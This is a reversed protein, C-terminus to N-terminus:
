RRSPRAWRTCAPPSGTSAPRISRRARITPITTPCRCWRSSRAPACTPSSAPRPRPRTSTARRSWSTACRTSCACISPSSSRSRCGTPPSGPWTCIPSGAARRAMERHRRHGPQRYQRARHRALGRRRESLRAQEGAPLRHRAPRASPDGRAAEAHDRAQALRLPAELLAARAGRHRRPRADRRDATRGGRRRRHHPAARRVAVAHARRDGPDRRQPRPHRPARDGGCGGREVRRVMHSDPAAAFMVLRGAIVAYGLAFVLIALGIRANAKAARDVNRGYLLTRVLRAAGLNAGADAGAPVAPTPRRRM